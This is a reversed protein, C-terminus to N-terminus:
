FQSTVKGNEEESDTEYDFRRDVNPKPIVKPRSVQAQPLVEEGTDMSKEQSGVENDFQPCTPNPAPEETMVVDKSTNIKSLIEVIETHGKRKACNIPTEGDENRANPNDTLPVLIKVIEAHGNRAARHIPTMGKDNPANPNDSLPTLIKVIETHGRQAAWAIPTKGNKDGINPNDTLPALIKVIETHNFLAAWHIPTNGNKDKVNPIPNEILPALIEVIETHGKRAAWYIPTYGQNNPANPNDTLPALIKVIEAFGCKAAVHIPTLGGKDPANSNDTSYPALVKVIETHGSLTAYFIPSVENRDPANPNESLPALIKIIETCGSRAAKCIPTDGDKDPANPNDTLRALIKLQEINKHSSTSRLSRWAARENGEDCIKHIKKRFKEQVEPKTYCKLNLYGKMHNVYGKRCYSATYKLYTAIHKKKESNALEIAQIWDKQNEESLFGIQDLEKLWFMPRSWVISKDYIEITAKNIMRCKKLDAYTLNLFINEAVHQLGPSNIIKEM